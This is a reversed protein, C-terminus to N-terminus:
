LSKRGKEEIEEAVERAWRWIAISHHLRVPQESALHCGVIDM